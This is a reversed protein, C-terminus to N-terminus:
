RVLRVDSVALTVRPAHGGRWQRPLASQLGFRLYRVDRLNRMRGHAHHRGRLDIRVHQVRRGLAMTRVNLYHGGPTVLLYWRQGPAADRVVRVTMDLFRYRRWDRAARTAGTRAYRLEVSPTASGAAYRSAGRRDYANAVTMTIAGGRARARAPARTPVVTVGRGAVARGAATPLGPVAIWGSAIMAPTVGVSVPDVRGAPDRSVRLTGHVPPVGELRWNGGRDTVTELAGLRVVAAPVPRGAGSATRAAGGAPATTVRGSVAPLTWGSLRALMARRAAEVAGPATDVVPLYGPRADDRCADVGESGGTYPQALGALLRDHLGRDVTRLRALLSHDEAGDRLAELRLSGYAPQRASPGPWILSAEGNGGVRRVTGGCAADVKTHSLYWPDAGPDRFGNRGDEWNNLGWYFFGSVGHQEALWGLLRPETAPKDILVNPTFRQTDSGYVYWWARRGQAQVRAVAAPDKYLDWLPPTWIDVHAGMAAVAARTPAETVMVPIRPSASGLQRAARVVTPYDAPAPEDVPLAYTREVMGAYRAAISRAAARREAEMTYARDEGPLNPLFPVEVAGFGMAAMRDLRASTEPGWTLNWGADRAPTTMPARGPSVGHEALMPLLSGYVGERFAPDGETTGLADALRLTSLRAVIRYGDTDATADAVVVRLPVSGAAGLDVTGEHPGAPTGPPVHVVAYLATTEGAPVDLVGTVPILPDPYRGDGELRDVGTSPRSLRVYGVRYLRVASAPITGPGTLASVAPRVSLATDSRVAIQVGEREGRAAWVEAATGADAPRTSHPFVTSGATAPWVQPTNAAGATGGGGALAAWAVVTAAILRRARPLPHRM